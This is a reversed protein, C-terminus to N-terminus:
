LCFFKKIGFTVSHNQLYHGHRLPAMHFKYELSLAFKECLLYSVGGMAQWAFGTNSGKFREGLIEIAQHVCDVGIGAGVYPTIQLCQWKSIDYYGNVMGSWTSVYGHYKIPAASEDTGNLSYYNHRYTVEGELRGGFCWAYGGFVGVNYGTDFKCHREKLYHSDLFNVGGQGGGYYGEQAHVVGTMALTLLIATFTRM